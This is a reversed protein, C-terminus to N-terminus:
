FKKLNFWGNTFNIIDGAGNVEQCYFKGKIIASDNEIMYLEGSNGLASSYVGAYSGISDVRPVWTASTNYQNFGMNYLNDTWTNVLYLVLRQRFSDKFAYIVNQGGSDIVYWATDAVWPSGNINCSVPDNGSWTFQSKTLPNLPNVSNNAASSPNATYDGNSCSSATLCIGAFLLVTYLIKNM